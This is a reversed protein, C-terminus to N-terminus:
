KFNTFFFMENLIPLNLKTFELLLLSESTLKPVSNVCSQWLWFIHSCSCCGHIWLLPHTNKFAKRLEHNLKKGNSKDFNCWYYFLKFEEHCSCLQLQCPYSIMDSCVIKLLYHLLPNLTKVPKHGTSEKESIPILKICRTFIKIWILCLSPLKATINWSLSFTFSMKM